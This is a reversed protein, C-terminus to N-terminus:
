RVARISSAFKFRTILQTSTGPVIFNLDMTEGYTALRIALLITDTDYNVMKWPDKLNPVCSKICM